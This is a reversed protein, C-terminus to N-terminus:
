SLRGFNAFFSCIQLTQCFFHHMCAGMTTNRNLSIVALGQGLVPLYFNNGMWVQLNVVLKYLILASKNTFMHDTAGSDAVTFCLSLGPLISAKSMREILSSLSKSLVICCSTHSTLGSPLQILCEIPLKIPSDHPLSAPPLAELVVHNCSLYFALNYNSKCAVASTFEVGSKDGEWRFNDDSLYEKAVTAVHGLPAIGAISSKSTLADDAAVSHGGPSPSVVLTGGAPVAAPAAALPPPSRILKFNLDKLIPCNESVNKDDKRHCFLSSLDQYGHACTEVVKQPQERPAYVAM